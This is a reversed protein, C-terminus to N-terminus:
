KARAQRLFQVIAEERTVYQVLTARESAPGRDRQRRLTRVGEQALMSATYLGRNGHAKANVDAGHAVLYKITPLHGGSVAQMLVTKGDRARANANAGHAMLAQVMTIEGARASLMLPTMGQSTIAGNPNAGGQLLAQMVAADHVFFALTLLTQMGNADQRNANAGHALLIKVIGPQRAAVAEALPTTEFAGGPEVSAGYALLDPVISANGALIAYDLARHGPPPANVNVGGALLRRVLGVDGKDAAEVLAAEKLKPWVRKSLLGTGGLVVAVAIAALGRTVRNTQRKAM